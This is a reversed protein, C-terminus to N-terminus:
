LRARLEQFTPSHDVMLLFRGNFRPRPFGSGAATFTANSGACVTQNMPSATVAAPINVTLTAHNSTASGCHNSFVAQYKTGTQAAIVPSVTLTTSTAGEIDTFSMGGDTSSQWQVGVAAGGGNSSANFTATGTPCVTQDMPQTDVTLTTVTCSGAEYAGIDPVANGDGDGDVPRASSRQDSVPSHLISGADIAPSGALLAMTPTPGGNNQLPGLKPDVGLINNSGTFFGSLPTQVLNNNGTVTGPLLDGMTNGALICNNLTASGFVCIGGANGQDGQAMNGSVTCNNLITSADNSLVGGGLASTQNGSFTCNTIVATSNLDLSMGGGGQGESTSTAQNGSVTRGNMTLGAFDNTFIGGGNGATSNSVVCANIELGCNRDVFMAGGFGSFPGAGNGHSITLGDIKAGGSVIHFIRSANNGSVTLVDAGPGNVTINNGVIIEGSTLTITGTVCPSIDIIEGSTAGSIAGRLSGAGNDQTNTM